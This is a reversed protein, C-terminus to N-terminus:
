PFFCWARTRPLFLIPGRVETQAYVGGWKHETTCDGECLAGQVQYKGPLFPDMEQPQTQLNFSAKYHGPKEGQIFNGGSLPFGAPPLVVLNLGGPGTEKIVDWEMNITFTQGQKGTKPEVAIYTFNAKGGEVHPCIDILQCVFIPDPDEYQLADIFGELGVYDCLLDCAIAEYQNPLLKCLDGCSGLVGVNLLINILQNMIQGMASVCFPCMDDKLAPTKHPMQNPLILGTHMKPKKVVVKASVLPAALCLVAVLLVALKM